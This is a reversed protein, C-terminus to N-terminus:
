YVVCYYCALIYTLCFQNLRRECCSALLHLPDIRVVRSGTGSTILCVLGYLWCHRKELVRRATPQFLFHDCVCQYWWGWWHRSWDERNVTFWIMNWWLRWIRGWSGVDLNKEHRERPNADEVEYDLNWKMENSLIVLVFLTYRLTLRVALSLFSCWRSDKLNVVIVNWFIELILAGLQGVLLPYVLLVSLTPLNNWANIVRNAFFNM